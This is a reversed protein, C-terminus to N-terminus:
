DPISLRRTERDFEAPIADDRLGFSRYLRQALRFGTEDPNAIFSSADVRLPQTLLLDRGDEFTSAKEHAYDYDWTGPTGPRLTWGTIGFLGLDIAISIGPNPPDFLKAALRLVSTPLELLSWPFITKEPGKWHLRELPTTFDIRGSEHITLMHPDDKTGFEMRDQRQRLEKYRSTFNWGMARNGTTQPDRLYEELTEKPIQDDLRDTPLICLWLGEFGAQLLESRRELFRDALSAQQPDARSRSFAERLEERTMGRLRDSVRILYQRNNGHILAYPKKLDSSSVSIRLIYGPESGAQAVDMSDIHIEQPAPPPEISDQFFDRLRDMERDPNAIPEVEVGRSNSEKIGIWIEGPESTNLMAVVERGISSLQPLAKASKFELCQSEKQGLPIRTM